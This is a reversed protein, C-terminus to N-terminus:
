EALLVRNKGAKKAAYMAEDARNILNSISEGGRSLAVGCSFSSSIKGDSTDFEIATFAERITDLKGIIGDTDNVDQFAILFEEGGYRGVIDSERVLRKILHSLGVLVSDGVGHGYNDNVSKFNDLDLLAIAYHTKLREALRRFGSLSEMLQGHNLLGTLGDKVAMARVHQGRTIRYEIQKFIHEPSDSKSIVDEGGASLVDLKAAPSDDASLFVIPVYEFRAEHRLIRAVEYGNVEPMNIDLLFIDPISVELNAIFEPASSYAILEFGKSKALGEFYEGITAQDDLLVIRFPREVDLACAQKIKYVLNNINIPKMAYDSVGSRVAQLRTSLQDKASMCIVRIGDAVCERTFAFVDDETADPMVVDLLVLHFHKEEMAQKCKTISTYHVCVFGFSELSKITAASTAFDDDVLAILIQDATRDMPMKPPVPTAAAPETPEPAQATLKNPHVLLPNPSKKHAAIFQNLFGDVDAILSASFGDQTIQRLRHDLETVLAFLDTFGLAGSEGKLSHVEFKLSDLKGLDQSKRIDQWGSIIAVYRKKYTDFFKQHLFEFDM